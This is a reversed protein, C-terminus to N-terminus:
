NLPMLLDLDPLQVLLFFDQSDESWTEWIKSISSGDGGVELFIDAASTYPMRKHSQIRQRLM